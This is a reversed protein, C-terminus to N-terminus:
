GRPSCPFSSPATAFARGAERAAQLLPEVAFPPDVLVATGADPDGVLYSACGLDDNVFQRLLLM